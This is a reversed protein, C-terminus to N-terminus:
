TNLSKMPQFDKSGGIVAKTRRIKNGEQKNYWIKPTPTHNRAKILRQEIQARGLCLRTLSLSNSPFRCINEMGQFTSYVWGHDPQWRIARQSVAWFGFLIKSHSHGHPNITWITKSLYQNLTSQHFLLIFRPICLCQMQAWAKMDSVFRVRTWRPWTRIRILNTESRTQARNMRSHSQYRLSM